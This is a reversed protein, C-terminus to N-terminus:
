AARRAAALRRATRRRSARDPATLAGGPAPTSCRPCDPPSLWSSAYGLIGAYDPLRSFPVLVAETTGPVVVLAEDERGIPESDDVHVLAFVATPAVGPDPPAPGDAAEALDDDVVDGGDPSPQGVTPIDDRRRIEDADPVPFPWRCVFCRPDYAPGLMAEHRYRLAHIGADVQAQPGDIRDRELRGWAFLTATGPDVTARGPHAGETLLGFWM